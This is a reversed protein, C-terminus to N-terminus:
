IMNHKLIVTNLRRTVTVDLETQIHELVEDQQAIVRQRHAQAMKTKLKTAMVKAVPPESLEVIYRKEASWASSVLLLSVLVMLRKM